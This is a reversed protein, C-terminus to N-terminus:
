FKLEISIELKKNDEMPKLVKENQENNIYYTVTIEDSDVINFCTIQSSGYITKGKLDKGIGLKLWNSVSVDKDEGNLLGISTNIREGISKFEIKFFIEENEDTIPYIIVCKNEEEM